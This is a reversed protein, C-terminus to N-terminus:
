ILRSGWMIAGAAALNIYSHYQKQVADVPGPLVAYLSHTIVVTAVGITLATSKTDRFLDM